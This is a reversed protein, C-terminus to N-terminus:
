KEEKALLFSYGMGMYYVGGVGSKPLQNDGRIFFTLKHKKHMTYETGIETRLSEIGNKNKPNVDIFLEESIFFNVPLHQLQYSIKLRGRFIMDVQINELKNERFITTQYRTRIAIKVQKIKEEYTLNANLRYQNLLNKEDTIKNMFYFGVGVNFRSQWFSYDTNLKLAARDLKGEFAHFRLEEKLSFGWKEKSKMQVESWIILGFDSTQAPLFTFFSFFLLFTVVIKKM